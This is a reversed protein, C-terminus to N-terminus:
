AAVKLACGECVLTVIDIDGDGNLGEFRESLVQGPQFERRCEDCRAGHPFDKPDFRDSM